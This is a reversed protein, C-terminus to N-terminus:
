TWEAWWRLWRADKERLAKLADSMWEAVNLLWDVIEGPQKEQLSQIFMELDEFWPKTLKAEIFWTWWYTKGMHVRPQADSIYWYAESRAKDGAEGDATIKTATQRAGTIDGTEAQEQVIDVYAQSKFAEYEIEAATKKAGQIDGEIVQVGVIYLYALSRSYEDEIGAATARAGAIDGLKAQLKAIDSSPECVGKVTEKAGKIDGWKGQAYFISWYASRREEENRIRGATDKAETIYGAEAQAGAVSAYFYDRKYESPLKRIAVRAQKILKRITAEAKVELTVIRDRVQKEMPSRAAVALYARFWAISLIERGAKDYALALNFLVQPSEPAVKQAKRFYRIATEWEQIKAAALGHEMARQAEPPISASQTQGFVVGEFVGLLVLAVLLSLFIFALTRNM